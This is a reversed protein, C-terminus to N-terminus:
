DSAAPLSGPNSDGRRVHQARRAVVHAAEEDDAVQEGIEALKRKRWPLYLASMTTQSLAAMISDLSSIAAAFAGAIVLGKFGAPLM